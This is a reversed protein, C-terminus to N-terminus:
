EDFSEPEVIAEQLERDLKKIFSKVTALKKFMRTTRKKNLYLCFKKDETVKVEALTDGKFGIKKTYVPDVELLTDFGLLISDGRQGIKVLRTSFQGSNNAMRMIKAALVVNNEAIQITGDDDIWFDEGEYPGNFPDAIISTLLEHTMTYRQTTSILM